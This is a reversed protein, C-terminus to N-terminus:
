LPGADNRWPVSDRSFHHQRAGLSALLRLGLDGFADFCGAALNGTGFSARM